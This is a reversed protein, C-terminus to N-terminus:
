VATWGLWRIIRDFLVVFLSVMPIVGLASGILHDRFSVRSLALAYSLQPALSLPIRLLTVTRIPRDDLKALIRKVWPTEIDGLAKGGVTRVVVFSFSLSLVAAVYGLIGGVLQGYSLVAAAIFLMGPVHLLEGVLFLLTLLLFGWGGASAMLERLEAILEAPKQDAIGTVQAVVYLGFFLAAVGVLRPWVAKKAEPPTAGVNAGVNADAGAGSAGPGELSEQSM